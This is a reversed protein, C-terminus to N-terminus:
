KSGGPRPELVEVVRRDATGDCGIVGSGQTVAVARRAVEQNADAEREGVAAQDLRAAVDHLVDGPHLRLRGRLRALALSASIAASFGSRIAM